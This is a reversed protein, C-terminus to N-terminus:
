LTWTESHKVPKVKVVMKNWPSRRQFPQFPASMASLELSPQAVEELGHRPPLWDTKRSFLLKVHTSIYTSYTSYTSNQHSQHGSQDMKYRFIDSTSSSRAVQCSVNRSPPSGLSVFSRFEFRFVWSALLKAATRLELWRPKAVEKSNEDTKRNQWWLRPEFHLGMTVHPSWIHGHKMVFGTSFIWVHVMMCRKVCCTESFRRHNKSKWLSKAKRGFSPHLSEWWGPLGSLSAEGARPTRLSPHPFDFRDPASAASCRPWRRSCRRRRPRPPPKGRPSALPSWPPRPWPPWPPEPPTLSATSTAPTAPVKWLHIWLWPASVFCSRKHMPVRIELGICGCYDTVQYTSATLSPITCWYFKRVQWSAMSRGTKPKAWKRWHRREQFEVWRQLLPSDPPLGNPRRRERRRQAKKADRPGLAEPMNRQAQSTKSHTPRTKSNWRNKTIKIGLQSQFCRWSTELHKLDKYTPMRQSRKSEKWKKPYKTTAKM